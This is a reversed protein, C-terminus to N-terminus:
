NYWCCGAVSQGKRM